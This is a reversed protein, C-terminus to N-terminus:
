SAGSEGILQHCIEINTYQEFILVDQNTTLLTLACPDPSMKKQMKHGALRGVAIFISKFVKNINIMEREYLKPFPLNNLVTALPPAFTGGGGMTGFHGFHDVIKSM